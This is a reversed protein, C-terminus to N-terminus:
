LCSTGASWYYILRSSRSDGGSPSFRRRTGLVSWRQTSQSYYWVFLVDLFLINFLDINSYLYIFLYYVSAFHMHLYIHLCLTRSPCHICHRVFWRSFPMLPHLSELLLLPNWCKEPYNPNGEGECIVMVTVLTLKWSSCPCTRHMYRVVSQWRWLSLLTSSAWLCALHMHMAVSWQHWLQPLRLSVCQCTWPMHIVVSQDKACCFTYKSLGRCFYSTFTYKSLFYYLLVEKREAISKRHQVAMSHQWFWDTQPNM